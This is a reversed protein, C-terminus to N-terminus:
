VYFSVGSVMFLYLRLVCMGAAGFRHLDNSQYKRQNWRRCLFLRIIKFQAISLFLVNKLEKKM